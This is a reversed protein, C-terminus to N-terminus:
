LTEDRDPQCTSNGYSRMEKKISINKSKQNGRDPESRIGLTFYNGDKCVFCFKRFLFFM